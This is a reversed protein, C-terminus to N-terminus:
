KRHVKSSGASRLTEFWAHGRQSGDDQDQGRQHLYKGSLSDPRERHSPARNTPHSATRLQGGVFQIRTIAAGSALRRSRLNRRQRREHPFRRLQGSCELFATPHMTPSRFLPDLLRWWGAQNAPLRMKWLHPERDQETRKQISAGDKVSTNRGCTAGGRPPM